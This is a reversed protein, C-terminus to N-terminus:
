RGMSEAREIAALVSRAFDVPTPWAPSTVPGPSASVRDIAASIAADDLPDVGATNGDFASQNYFLM